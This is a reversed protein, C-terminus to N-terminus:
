LYLHWAALYRNSDTVHKLDPAWFLCVFMSIISSFLTLSVELLSCHKCQLVSKKNSM